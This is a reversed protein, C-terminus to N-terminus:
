GSRGISTRAKKEMELPEGETKQKSIQSLCVDFILIALPIAYIIFLM